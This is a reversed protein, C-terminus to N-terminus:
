PETIAETFLGQEAWEAWLDNLEEKDPRDPDEEAASM